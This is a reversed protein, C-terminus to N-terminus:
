SSAKAHIAGILHEPIADCQELCRGVGVRQAIAQGIQGPGIVVSVYKM